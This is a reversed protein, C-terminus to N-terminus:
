AKGRLHFGDVGVEITLLRPPKRKCAGWCVATEIELDNGTSSSGRRRISVDVTSNIGNRLSVKEIVVGAGTPSPRAHTHQGVRQVQVVVSSEPMLDVHIHCDKKKSRKQVLRHVLSSGSTHVQLNYRRKDADLNPRGSMPPDSGMTWVISVTPKGFVVDLAVAVSLGAIFAELLSEVIKGGEFNLDFPLLQLIWYVAVVSSFRLGETIWGAVVRRDM